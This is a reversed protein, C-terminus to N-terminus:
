QFRQMPFSGRPRRDWNRYARTWDKCAPVASQYQITEQLVRNRHNRVKYTMQQTSCGSVLMVIALFLMIVLMAFGASFAFVKLNVPQEPDLPQKKM